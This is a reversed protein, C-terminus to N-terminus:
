PKVKEECVHDCLVQLSRCAVHQDSAFNTMANCKEGFGQSLQDGTDKMKTLEDHILSKMKM